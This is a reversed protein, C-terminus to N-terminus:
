TQVEPPPASGQKQHLPIQQRERRLLVLYTVNDWANHIASALLLLAAAATAFLSAHPHPRLTAAAVALTLYAAIPLISHFLWDELVPQYGTQQHMRRSVTATYLVGGCGTLGLLIAPAALTHWPAVLAAALLLVVVFHVITPTAFANAAKADDPSMPMDAILAMVVFQLGTLAGAAGGVLIYFNQWELLAPM